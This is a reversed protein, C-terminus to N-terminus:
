ATIAPVTAVAAAASVSRDAEAGLTGALPLTLILM